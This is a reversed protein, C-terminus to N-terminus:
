MAVPLGTRVSEEMACIIRTVALGDEGNAVSSARRRHRWDVFHRISQYAFGVPKDFVTPMVLM